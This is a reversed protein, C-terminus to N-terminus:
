SENFQQNEDTGKYNHKVTTPSRFISELQHSCKSVTTQNRYWNLYIVEVRLNELKRNKNAKSQDFESQDNLLTILM